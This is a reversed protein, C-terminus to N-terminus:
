VEPLSSPNPGNTHRIKELNELCNFYSISEEHSMEFIEINANVMAEYWETAKAQDLIAIFEDQDLQKFDKEPFYLQYPNLDHVRQKEVFKQLL